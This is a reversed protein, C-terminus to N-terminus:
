AFRVLGRTILPGGPSADVQGYWGINKQMSQGHCRLMLSRLRSDDSHSSFTQDRIFVLPEPLQRADQTLHAVRYHLCATSRLAIVFGISSRRSPSPLSLRVQSCMDSLGAFNAAFALGGRNLPSMFHM